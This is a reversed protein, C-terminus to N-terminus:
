FRLRIHYDEFCDFCLGMDPERVLIGHGEEEWAQLVHLMMETAQM